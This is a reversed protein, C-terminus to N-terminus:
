KSTLLNIIIIKYMKDILKLMYGAKSVFNLEIFNYTDPFIWEIEQKIYVGTLSGSGWEPDDPKKCDATQPKHYQHPLLLNKKTM